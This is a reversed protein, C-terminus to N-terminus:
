LFDHIIDSLLPMFMMKMLIGFNLFFSRTSIRRTQKITSFNQASIKHQFQNM